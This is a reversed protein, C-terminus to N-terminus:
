QPILDSLHAMRSFRGVTCSDSTQISSYEDVIEEWARGYNADQDHKLKQRTETMDFCRSAQFMLWFSATLEDGDDKLSKHMESHRWHKDTLASAAPAASRNMLQKERTEVVFRFMFFSFFLGCSSGFFQTFTTLLTNALEHIQKTEFFFNHTYWKAKYKGKTKWRRRWQQGGVSEESHDM